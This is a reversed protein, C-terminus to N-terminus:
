KRKFKETKGAKDTEQIRGQGFNDQYAVVTLGLFPPAEKLKKLEVSAANEKWWKEWAASATKRVKPGFSAIQNRTLLRTQHPTNINSRAM